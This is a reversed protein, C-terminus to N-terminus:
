MTPVTGERSMNARGGYVMLYVIVEVVRINELLPWPNRKYFSALQRQSKAYRGKGSWKLSVRPPNRVFFGFLLGCVIGLGFSVADFRTLDM